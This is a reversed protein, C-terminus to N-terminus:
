ITPKSDDCQLGVSANTPCVWKAAVTAFVMSLIPLLGAAPDIPALPDVPRVGEHGGRLNRSDM